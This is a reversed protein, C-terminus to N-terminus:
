RKYNKSNEIHLDKFTATLLHIFQHKTCKNLYLHYPRDVKAVAPSSKTFWGTSIHSYGKLSGLSTKIDHQSWGTHSCLLRWYGAARHMAYSYSTPKVHFCARAPEPAPTTRPVRTPIYSQPHAASVCPVKIDRSKNVVRTKFKILESM